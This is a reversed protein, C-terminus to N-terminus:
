RTYNVATEFVMDYGEEHFDEDASLIERAGEIAEKSYLELKVILSLFTDALIVADKQERTLIM